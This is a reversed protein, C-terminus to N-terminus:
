SVVLEGCDPCEVDTRDGTVRDVSWAGDYLAEHGCAPCLLVAKRDTGDTPRHNKDTM